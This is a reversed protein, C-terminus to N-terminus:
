LQRIKDILMPGLEFSAEELELKLAEKEENMNNAGYVMASHYLAMPESTKSSVYNEITALAENAMNNKLQALALLHYTEPTARHEVEHEALALSKAPDKDLFLEILYANYMAGYNNNELADVFQQEAFQAKPIDGDYEYLEQQFLYYDPLKHNKMTAALIRHAEVTNGEHAYAIWAIGRKVHSNSPQLQLTKLYYNYADAIRGAHGYYDGLNSYTWIMLPNSGKAEALKKAEEMFHIASDLDGRYDSWKSLRILYNYDSMNKVANLYKYANEYDGVEMAADFLMLQTQHKNSIGDLTNKLLDYAEEFRHQTIYNHALGRAFADKDNASIEVGKQYLQEAYYIYQTNGSIEFLQEYAAALPMLDGVGSSDPRLRRSWFDKQALAEDLSANNTLSLYQDYDSTNTIQKNEKPGCSVLLLVLSTLAILNQIM